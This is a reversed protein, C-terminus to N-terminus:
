TIDGTPSDAFEIAQRVVAQTPSASFDAQLATYFEPFESLVQSAVVADPAM